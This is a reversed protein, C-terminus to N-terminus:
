DRKIQGLLLFCSSQELNIILASINFYLTNFYFLNYLLHHSAKRSPKKAGETILKLMINGLLKSLALSLGLGM